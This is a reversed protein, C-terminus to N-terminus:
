IPCWCISVCLTQFKDPLYFSTVFTLKCLPQLDLYAVDESSM